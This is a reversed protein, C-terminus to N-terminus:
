EDELIPLAHDGSRRTPSASLYPQYDIDVANTNDTEIWIAGLGGRLVIVRLVPDRQEQDSQEGKAKRAHNCKMKGLWGSSRYKACVTFCSRSIKPSRCESKITRYLPLDTTRVRGRGRSKGQRPKPLRATDWGEHKRRIAHCSPVSLTSCSFPYLQRWNALRSASSAMGGSPQVLAPISGPQGLWSLPLRSASTPNSGRVKRDTLERELWKPRRAGRHHHLYEMKVACVPTGLQDNKKTQFTSKVKDRKLFTPLVQRDVTDSGSKYGKHPFQICVGTSPYSYVALRRRLEGRGTTTSHPLVLNTVSTSGVIERGAELAELTSIGGPSDMLPVSSSYSMSKRPESGEMMARYVRNNYNEKTEMFPQRSSGHM